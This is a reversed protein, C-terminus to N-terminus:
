GEYFGLVFWGFMIKFPNKKKKFACFCLLLHNKKKFIFFGWKNRFSQIERRIEEASQTAEEMEDKLSDIHQNYEQLSSIIADQFQIGLLQIGLLLRRELNNKSLFQM